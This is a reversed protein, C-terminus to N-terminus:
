SYKAIVLHTAQIMILQTTSCYVDFLLSNITANGKYM